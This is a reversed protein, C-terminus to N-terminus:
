VQVKLNRKCYLPQLNIKLLNKILIYLTKMIFTKHFFIICKILKQSSHNKMSWYVYMVCVCVCFVCQQECM